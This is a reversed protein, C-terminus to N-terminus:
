MIMALYFSKMIKQGFSTQRQKQFFDYDSKGILEDHSKGMFKCFAENLVIWQHKDNKVFIPDAVTDVIYTFFNLQPNSLEQELTPDSTVSFDMKMGLPSDDHHM